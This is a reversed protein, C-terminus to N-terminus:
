NFVRNCEEKVDCRQEETQNTSRKEFPIMPITSQFCCQQLMSYFGSISSKM